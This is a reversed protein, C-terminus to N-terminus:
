QRKTVVLIRAGSGPTFSGPRDKARPDNLACTLTNSEVKYITLSTQGAAAPDGSEKIYLNLQKPEQSSACAFKGKYWENGPGKIEFTGAETFSLSWEGAREVEHGVWTGKLEAQGPNIGTSSEHAVGDCGYIIIKGSEGADESVYRIMPAGGIYQSSGPLYVARVHGSSAYGPSPPSLVTLYGTLILSFVVSNVVARKMGPGGSSFATNNSNSSSKHVDPDIEGTTRLQETFRGLPELSFDNRSSSRGTRLGPSRAATGTACKAFPRRKAKLPDPRTESAPVSPLPGGAGMGSGAVKIFGRRTVGM